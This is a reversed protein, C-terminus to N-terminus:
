ILDGQARSLQDNSTLMRIYVDYPKIKDDVYYSLLDNDIDNRQKSNDCVINKSADIQPGVPPNQEAFQQAFTSSEQKADNRMHTYGVFTDVRNTTQKQQVNRITTANLNIIMILFATMALLALQFDVFCVGLIVLMIAVKSSLMNMWTLGSMDIFPAAAIFLIITIKAILLAKDADM